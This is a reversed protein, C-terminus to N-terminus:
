RLWALIAAVAAITSSISTVAALIKVALFHRAILKDIKRLELDAAESAQADRYEDDAIIAKISSMISEMDEVKASKPFDIDRELAFEAGSLSLHRSAHAAAPHYGALEGAQSGFGVLGGNDSPRDPSAPAISTEKASSGALMGSISLDEDLDPWHIGMPMIEFNKRQESTATQLRPYWHLPTAIRRGDRLTVIIDAADFEVNSARLDGIEIEM